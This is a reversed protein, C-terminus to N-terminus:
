RATTSRTSPCSTRRYKAPPTRPDHPATFNVQLYFPQDRKAQIYEVAAEAFLESSFGTVEQGDESFKMEHAGMGTPFVRRAHEFGYQGPRGDNHWKGIYGTVYGAQKLTQSILPLGPKIKENFYRVGNHFASVGTLLEARSPTCVPVTVHARTFTTGAAVLRALNPTRIVDNGLAHITDARQDDSFLVLINPRKTQAHASLTCIALLLLAALSTNNRKALSM